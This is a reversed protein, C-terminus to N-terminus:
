IVVIDCNCKGERCSQISVRGEEGAVIAVPAGTDDLVTVQIDQWFAAPLEFESQSDVTFTVVTTILSSAPAPCGPDPCPLAPDFHVVTMDVQLDYCLENVLYGGKPAPDGAVLATSLLSTATAGDGAAVDIGDQVLVPLMPVECTGSETNLKRVIRM